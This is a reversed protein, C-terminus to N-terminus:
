ARDIRCLLEVQLCPLCVLIVICLPDWDSSLPGTVPRQRLIEGV